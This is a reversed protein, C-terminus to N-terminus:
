NGCNDYKKTLVLETQNLCKLVQSLLGYLFEFGSNKRLDSGFFCRNIMTKIRNVSTCWTCWLSGLSDDFVVLVGCSFFLDKVVYLVRWGESSIQTSGVLSSSLEWDM